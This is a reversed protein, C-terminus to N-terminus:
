PNNGYSDRDQGNLQHIEVITAKNRFYFTSYRNDRQSKHSSTAKTNGESYIDDVMQILLLM